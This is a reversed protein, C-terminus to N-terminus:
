SSHMRTFRLLLKDRHYYALWDISRAAHDHDHGAIPVFRIALRAVSTDFGAGQFTAIVDDIAYLPPLHLESRNAGHWEVMLPSSTHVGMVAFYVGGPRLCNHIAAAHTALDPLLYLVEHSFAVDVDSWEEPVSESAEFRLPRDQALRRADDIAGVAPDYGLGEAIGHRDAVLRLFGGRNCGADLIRKGALNTDITDIMANWIFTHEDQMAEDGAASRWYTADMVRDQARGVWLPLRLIAPGEM